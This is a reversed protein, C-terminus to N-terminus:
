GNAADTENQTCERLAVSALFRLILLDNSDAIVGRVNAVDAVNEQAKARRFRRHVISYYGDVFRSVGLVLFELSRSISASRNRHLAEEKLEKM